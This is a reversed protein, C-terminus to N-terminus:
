GFRKTRHNEYAHRQVFIGCKKNVTITEKSKNNDKQGASGRFKYDIRVLLQSLISAEVLRSEPIRYIGSYICPLYKLSIDDSNYEKCKTQKNRPQLSKKKHEMGCPLLLCSCFAMGTFKIETGIVWPDEKKSFSIITENKIIENEEKTKHENDTFSAHQYQLKKRKVIEM